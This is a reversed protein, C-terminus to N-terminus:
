TRALDAIEGKHNPCDGCYLGCFAILEDKAAM